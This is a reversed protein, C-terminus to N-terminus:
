EQQWHFSLIYDRYPFVNRDRQNVLIYIQCIYVFQLVHSSVPLYLVFDLAFYSIFVSM